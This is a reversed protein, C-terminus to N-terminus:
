STFEINDTQQRCNVNDTKYPEKENDNRSILGIWLISSNMRIYCSVFRSKYRCNNTKM